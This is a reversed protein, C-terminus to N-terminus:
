TPGQLPLLKGAHKQSLPGSPWIPFRPSLSGATAFPVAGFDYTAFIPSALTAPVAARGNFSLGAVTVILPTIDGPITQDCESGSCNNPDAGVMNHGYTVGDLPNFTTGFWHAVTRATPLPTAGGVTTSLAQMQSDDILLPQSQAAAIEALGFLLFGVLVTVLSLRRGIM